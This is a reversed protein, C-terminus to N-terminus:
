PLLLWGALLRRLPSPDDRPVRVFPLDAHLRALLNPNDPTSADPQPPDSLITVDPQRGHHRMALLTAAVDHLVGLRNPAVLIWYDAELAQALDYNTETPTLPSFVGGASEVICTTYPSAHSIPTTERERIWSAIRSIDVPEGCRDAALWPTVPDPFAYLTHSPHGAAIALAHRDSPAAPAGPSPM